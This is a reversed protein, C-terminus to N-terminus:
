GPDSRLHDFARRAFTDILGSVEGAREEPVFHGCNNLMHLVAGRIDAALRRGWTVPLFADDAGWVVMAPLDLKNLKHAARRTERNDLALLLRRLHDRSSVSLRHPRLYEEITQDDISGPFKVGRRFGSDAFGLARTMGMRVAAHWVSRWAAIHQLKRVVAVPWNDYAASAVLALGRVRRSMGMALLQGVAGGIDHGVVVVDEVKYRDLLGEVLLAQGRLSHDADMAASTDGLGLLDPAIIHYRRRLAAIVDRWLFCSTPFGHLLVLCPGNGQGQNYHAVRAGHVALFRKPYGLM